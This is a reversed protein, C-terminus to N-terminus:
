PNSVQRTMDKPLSFAAALLLIALVILLMRSTDVEQREIRRLQEVPVRVPEREGAVSGVVADTDVSTIVMEYRRGDTTTLVVRDQPSVAPREHRVAQAAAQQGEAVVRLTSCAVLSVSVVLVVALRLLRKM